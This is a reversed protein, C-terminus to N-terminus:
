PKRGGLSYLRSSTRLYMVGDSVVPTAYSTEGLPVRALVEFDDRASLVVVEGKKSICYLRSNVCVPSGFYSGGVRERWIVEGTSVDLCTVIGGDSWLFLRTGVVLPTPVLPVAKTVEYALSPKPNKATSGPRVAVCRKGSVGAGYTAVILGSASIPSGVCRDAFLDDIEWNIKGSATDVATVGHSTGTFILENKGDDRHHICPTSYPALTTRRPIQWRTQGTKRDVAILFSKGAVRTEGERGMMRALLQPDGQENALVVIDDVIIPSSGSGHQGVFPGLDRRWTENGKLDLALLVVEGPTTWTVVLGEADVAPTATAYSNASHQRHVQSPYDRRWLIRGHATDICLITRVATNPEGCTLFVQNGWVVPSGHGIGPLDVKWNYDRDTWETPIAVAEALGTGNPGRFRSWEQEQQAYAVSVLLLLTPLCATRTTMKM